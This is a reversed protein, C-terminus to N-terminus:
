LFARLSISVTIEDALIPLGHEGALDRLVEDIPLQFKGSLHRAVRELQERSLQKVAVRYFRRPGRGPLEAVHEIPSELPITRTGFVEVWETSRSADQRLTGKIM